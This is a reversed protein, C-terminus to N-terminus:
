VRSVTVVDLEVLLSYSCCPLVRKIRSSFLGNATPGCETASSPSMTAALMHLRANASDLKLLKLQAFLLRLARVVAQATAPRRALAM